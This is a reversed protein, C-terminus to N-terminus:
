NNNFLLLYHVYKSVTILFNLVDHKGSFNYLSCPKTHFSQIIDGCYYYICIWIFLMRCWCRCSYYHIYNYITTTFLVLCCWATTTTSTATSEARLWNLRRMTITRHANFMASINLKEPVAPSTKETSYRENCWFSQRRRCRRITSKRLESRSDLLVVRVQNM